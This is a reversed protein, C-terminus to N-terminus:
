GAIGDPGNARRRIAWMDYEGFTGAYFTPEWLPVQGLAFALNNQYALAIELPSQQCHGRLALHLHDPMVSLRSIQHSKVKAIKFCRDRLRSLREDDLIRGRQEVVLVVHLNYWYRGHSSAAPKSLDADCNVTTYQSMRQQFAADVFQANRVQDEIYREVHERQNEGVFRVSVKRSFRPARGLATRLAHQLRGKARSALFSPSVDPRASFTIQLKEPALFHELVRLGDNEWGEATTAAIEGIDFSPFIGCSPWATWSYHLHYRPHVREASYLPQPKM